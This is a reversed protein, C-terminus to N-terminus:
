AIINLVRIGKIECWIRKMKALSSGSITSKQTGTVGYLLYSQLEVKLYLYAHILIYQSSSGLELVYFKTVCIDYYGPNFEYWKSLTTVRCTTLRNLDM